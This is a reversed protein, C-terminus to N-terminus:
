YRLDWKSCSISWVSQITLGKKEKQAHSIVPKIRGHSSELSTPISIIAVEMIPCRSLPLTVSILVRIRRMNLHKPRLVVVRM